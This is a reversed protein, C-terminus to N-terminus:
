ARRDAAMDRLRHAAEGCGFMMAGRCEARGGGIKRSHGIDRNDFRIVRLRARGAARLVEQDWAILQTALGMILVLRPTRLRGSEQYALEISGVQARQETM